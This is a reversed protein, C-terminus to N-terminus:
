SPGLEVLLHDALQPLPPVTEFQRELGNLSRMLWNHRGIWARAETTPLLSGLGAVRRVELGASRAARRVGGVTHYRIRIGRWEAGGPRLRRFASGPRGSRVMWVWEWPVFRGMIVAVVAGEPGLRGAISRLASGLDDVCNLAGFDSLVLDFPGACGAVAELDSIDGLEVRVAEPVGRCRERAVDVMRKSSDVAVVRMGAEALGLADIGTGCGLELATGGPRLHPEIRRWVASRLTRGLPSSSFEDDYTFALTDFPSSSNAVHRNAM